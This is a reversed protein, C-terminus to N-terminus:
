TATCVTRQQQQKHAPRAHLSDVLWITRYGGWILARWVLVSFVAILLLDVM